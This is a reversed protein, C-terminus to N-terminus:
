AWVTVTTVDLAEEWDEPLSLPSPPQSSFSTEVPREWQSMGTNENYYYSAGSAPDKAEVWGTPLKAPATTQTSQAELKMAKFTNIHPDGKATDDKLIGRARLKQKLYEPLEKSESKEESERNIEPSKHGENGGIGLKKPMAINSRSAGYYAGGGPVGYGNGIEINCIESGMHHHGGDVSAILLLNVVVEERLTSKGRKLAMEARHETTMKLLHEKLANPDHRRGSLIDTNDMSPESEGKAQRQSHIIRQTAIEQERLVADCAATEIDGM